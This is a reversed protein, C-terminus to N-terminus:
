GWIKKRCKSCIFSRPSGKFTKEKRCKRCKLTKVKRFGSCEFDEEDSSEDDSSEEAAAKTTEAIDVQEASKTAEAIDLQELQREIDRLKQELKVKMQLLYEKDSVNSTEGGM